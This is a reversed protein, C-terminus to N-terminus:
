AAAEELAAPAPAAQAPWMSRFMYWHEPHERIANEVLRAVRQMIAQVDGEASVPPLVRASFAGDAGRWVFAVIIPAGVRSAFFGAGAPIRVPAGCLEVEVGEDGSLPKDVLFAVAENRRLASLIRRVSKEVPIVKLGLAMRRENIAADLSSSSFTDAIVHVPYRRAMTGAALDWNGFHASVLVAGRRQAMAQEVYEWGQISALIHDISASAMHPLAAFDRMYRVYNRWQLRAVTELERQSVEAGLIVRVNSRVRSHMMPLVRWAVAAMADALRLQAALPLVRTLWTALRVLLVM